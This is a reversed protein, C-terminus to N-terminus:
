FNYEARLDAKQTAVKNNLEASYRFTLSLGNVFSFNVAAGPSVLTIPKNFTRVYFPLTQEAFTSKYHKTRLYLENVCSLSLSPACFVKENIVYSKAFSVGGESRLMHTNRSNVTLNLNQAGTETFGNSQLYFYDLNAFPEAHVDRAMEYNFNGGLHFTLDYSHSHHKAKRNLTSFRINRTAHYSNIGGVLASNLSFNQEMYDAYIGLYGSEVDGNGRNKKWDIHSSGYGGGFGILLNNEFAYDAGALIGLQHARFGVQEGIQDQDTYYGFPELWVSTPFLPCGDVLHKTAVESAHNRFISTVLSNSNVNLLDFAGFVAPHMQDLADTVNGSNVIAPIINELDSGPNYVLALLNNKVKNPNHNQVILPFHLGNQTSGILVSNPLYQVTFSLPTNDQVSSFTGTVGGGATLITYSTGQYYIGPDAVIRLTGNLTAAGTVQILDSQGQPNIEDEYLATSGQTYSAAILTGISHGPRVEGNNVLPGVPGVGKLIGGSNVTTLSSNAISGDVVLTGANVTTTGTYSNATSLTLTGTGTKVLAGSGSIAGSLTQSFQNTNFTGNGTLAIARTQTLDSLAEITGANLTLTGSTAGLLRDDSIQVIASSQVTTGGVYGSIFQNANQYQLTLTGPGIVTLPNGANLTDGQIPNPITLQTNPAITLSLTSGSNLFIDSGMASGATASSGGAAGAVVTNGSFSGASWALTGGNKVFIAGGLAAGGGGGRVNSSGNSGSGGGFVSTGGANGGSGGGGAGFGGIGGAGGGLNSTGAGGGGAGFGGNGGAGGVANDVNGAGGGGGGGGCFDYAGSGGSGGAYLSAVNSGGGAGGGAGTSPITTAAGSAGAGSATGTGGAAGPNGNEDGGGSGGDGGVTEGPTGGNQPAGGAAGGFFGAGGGGGGGALAHDVIRFVGGGAGGVGTRIGGGGGGGGGSDTPETSGGGGGSGGQASNSNIILNVTTVTAGSNVFLAAGAGLGGGGGGANTTGGAGGNGGYATAGNITLTGIEVDGAEIFFVQNGNANIVIPVDPFGNFTDILLSIAPNIAPLSSNLQIPQGLQAFGITNGSGTNANSDLIAQRLTGTGSDGTSSVLYGTANLSLSYCCLSSFLFWKTALSPSYPM